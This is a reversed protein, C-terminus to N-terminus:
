RAGRRRPPLDPTSQGQDTPEDGALAALKPFDHELTSRERAKALAKQSRQRAEKDKIMEQMQEIDVSRM